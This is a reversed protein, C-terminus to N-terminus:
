GPCQLEVEDLRQPTEIRLAPLCCCASCPLPTWHHFCRVSMRIPQWPRQVLGGLVLGGLVLVGLFPGGLVLGGLVLGGLHDCLASAKLCL